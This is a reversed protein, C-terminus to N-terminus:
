AAQPLQRRPLSGKRLLLDNRNEISFPITDVFDQQAQPALESGNLLVQIYKIYSERMTEAFLGAWSRFVIDKEAPSLEIADHLAAELCHAFSIADFASGQLQLDPTEKRLIRELAAAEDRAQDQIRRSLRHVHNSRVPSSPRGHLEQAFLVAFRHGIPVSRSLLRLALQREAPLDKYHSVTNAYVFLLVRRLYESVLMPADFTAFDALLTRMQPQYLAGTQQM